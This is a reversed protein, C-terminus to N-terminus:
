EPLFTAEGHGALPIKGSGRSSTASICAILGHAKEREKQTLNKYSAVRIMLM